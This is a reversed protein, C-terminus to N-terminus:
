RIRIPTPADIKRELEINASELLERQKVITKWVRRVIFVLSGYLVLFSGGVASYTVWRLNFIDRNLNPISFPDTAKIEIGASMTADHDELLRVIGSLRTGILTSTVVALVALTVFSVVSFQVLLNERIPRM